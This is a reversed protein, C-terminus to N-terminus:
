EATLIEIVPIDASGVVSTSACEVAKMVITLQDNQFRVPVDFQYGATVELTNAPAASFTVIGTTTDVTWGSAQSVGDVAVVVTGTVPKTINRYTTLSSTTYGKRLQFDVEVGDGTGINQDTDSITESVKCSKYDLWDKWRFGHAAGKVSQFFVVLADLQAQTKVGYGANYTHRGTPWRSNRKEHGGDVVIVDTQFMPGSSSGFSIDTPFQTEIFSM